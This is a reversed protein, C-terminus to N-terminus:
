VSRVSLPEVRLLGIQYVFNAAESVLRIASGFFAVEGAGFIECLLRTEEGDFEDVRELKKWKRMERGLRM